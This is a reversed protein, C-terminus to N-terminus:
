DGIEAICPCVSVLGGGTGVVRAGSQDVVMYRPQTCGSEVPLNAPPIVILIPTGRVTNWRSEDWQIDPRKAICVVESLPVNRYRTQIIM